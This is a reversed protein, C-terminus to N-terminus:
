ESKEKGSGDDLAAEQELPETEESSVPLTGGTNRNIKNWKPRSFLGIAMTICYVVTFAPFLLVGSFLERRKNAGMKKYDCLVLVFGQLLGVFFFLFVLAAGVILLLQWFGPGVLGAAAVADNTFYGNVGLYTFAYIYYGPLWTCLILCIIMFMYTLIQEIFSFRLQKVTNWLMPLTYRGLLRVNGSAIRKNRNLTDKFSSPLDEYVVADEVFHCRYGDLMRKFCFETDECISKTDYGGIEKIIKMDTLSGPGNVHADLHLRERVRSSFRSDFIYYLGCARTFQNQTMNLASEYPRAIKVGSAFADNMLSFFDDNIHNDADLRISFDYEIGTELVKDYIHKLAYSVRRHSPDPDNLEFVTAGAARAREATRDDCNHAVVYVDFLEKPYTQKDFLLKVTDYIVDEENHAPIVVCIRHKKDSKKFQKKPLWSLLMFLFQLMFPIGICILVVNNIQTLVNYLTEHWEM